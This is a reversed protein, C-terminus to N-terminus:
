EVVEFEISTLQDQVADAIRQELTQFEVWMNFLAYTAAIVFVGGVTWAGKILQMKGERRLKDAMLNAVKGNTYDQKGEISDLKDTVHQMFQPLQETVIEIKGLRRATEPSPVSHKGGEKFGHM